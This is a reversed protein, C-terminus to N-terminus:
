KGYEKVLPQKECHKILLRGLMPTLFVCSRSVMKKAPTGAVTM